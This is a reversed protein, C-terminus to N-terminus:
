RKDGMFCRSKERAPAAHFVLQTEQALCMLFLFPVDKGFAQHRGIADPLELQSDVLELMPDLFQLELDVISMTFDGIFVLLCAPVDFSRAALAIKGHSLELVELL